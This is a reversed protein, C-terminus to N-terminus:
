KNNKISNSFLIGNKTLHGFFKKELKLKEDITMKARDSRLMSEISESNKKM